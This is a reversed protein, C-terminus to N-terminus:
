IGKNVKNQKKHRESWVCSGAVDEKKKEKKKRKKKTILLFVGIKIDAVYIM